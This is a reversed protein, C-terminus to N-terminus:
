PAHQHHRKRYRRHTQRYERNQKRVQYDLRIPRSWRRLRPFRTKWSDSPRPVDFHSSKWWLGPRMNLDFCYIRILWLLLPAFIIILAIQLYSM